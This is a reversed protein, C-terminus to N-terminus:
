YRCRYTNFAVKNRRDYELTITNIGIESRKANREHLLMCGGVQSPLVFMCGKDPPLLDFHAVYEHGIFLDCQRTIPEYKIQFTEEAM